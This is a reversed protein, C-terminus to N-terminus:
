MLLFRKRKPQWRTCPAEQQKSITVISLNPLNIEPILFALPWVENCNYRVRLTSEEVDVQTWLMVPEARVMHFFPQSLPQFHLFYWNRQVGDKSDSAIELRSLRLPMTFIAKLVVGIDSRLPHEAWLRYGKKMAIAENYSFLTFLVLRFVMTTCYQQTWFTTYTLIEVVYLCTGKVFIIFYIRIYRGQITKYLECMRYDGSNMALTM